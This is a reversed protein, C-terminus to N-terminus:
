EEIKGGSKIFEDTLNNYVIIRVDELYTECFCNNNKEGKLNEGYHTKVVYSVIKDSPISSFVISYKQHFEQIKKTLLQLDELPINGRQVFSSIVSLPNEKNFPIVIDYIKKTCNGSIIKVCNNVMSKTLGLEKILLHSDLFKENQVCYCYIMIFTSRPDNRVKLDKTQHDAARQVLIEKKLDDGLCALNEIIKKGSLRRMDSIDEYTLNDEEDEDELFDEYM